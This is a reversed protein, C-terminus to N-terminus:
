GLYFKVLDGREKSTALHGHLHRITAGTALPDGSRIFFGSGNLDFKNEAWRIADKLDEMAGSPLDSISTVHSKLFFILHIGSGPYPYDNRSVLWHVGSWLIENDHYLKLNELCFPCHNRELITQMETRQKDSRCNTMEIFANRLRRYKWHTFPYENKEDPAQRELVRAAQWDGESYEPFLTDGEVEAKIHTLYMESAHPLALKYIEAGGAVFLTHGEARELVKNWDDLVTVGDCRLSNPHRTLVINERGPLPKGIRNVISHFTKKGMVVPHGMTHEQFLKLDDRLKWPIDNGRGIVGNQAVAAIIKLPM